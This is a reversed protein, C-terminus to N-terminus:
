SPSLPYSFSIGMIRTSDQSHERFRGSGVTSLPATVL